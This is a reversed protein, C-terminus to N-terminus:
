LRPKRGAPPKRKRARASAANPTKADFKVPKPEITKRSFYGLLFGKGAALIISLIIIENRM